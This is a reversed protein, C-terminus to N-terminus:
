PDYAATNVCARLVRDMDWWPSYLYFHEIENIITQIISSLNLDNVDSVAKAYYYFTATASQVDGRASIRLFRVDISISYKFVRCM